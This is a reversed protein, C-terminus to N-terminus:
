AGDLCEPGLGPVCPVREGFSHGLRCIFTMAVPWTGFWPDEAPPNKIKAVMSETCMVPTDVKEGDYQCQSKADKQGPPFSRGGLM